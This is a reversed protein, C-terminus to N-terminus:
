RARGPYHVWYRSSWFIAATIAGVALLFVWAMASAYGMEFGAFGRLYLYLTYTLTEEALGSSGSSLVYAATFNQFAAITEMAVTLLIVPSLMPVTISRFTRWRSAGDMLAAERYDPPIQKLGALFIVMPGGFQWIALLILTGLATGPETSWSRPAVGFLGLVQNVAGDTDFMARWTIALAVSVGLLSPLYVLARAWLVGRRERALLMAAALAIALKAPVSVAVFLVTVRIAQWYAPDATFMRTYNDLGVWEAEGTILNYDTFSLYLSYLTPALTIGCLGLLWPSLFLYGAAYERRRRAPVKAPTVRRAPADAEPEALVSTM